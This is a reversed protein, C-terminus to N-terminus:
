AHFYGAEARGEESGSGGVRQGAPKASSAIVNGSAIVEPYPPQVVPVDFPM